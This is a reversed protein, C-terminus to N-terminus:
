PTHCRVLRRGIVLSIRDLLITFLGWQARTRISIWNLVAFLTPALRVGCQLLRGLPLSPALRYTATGNDTKKKRSRSDEVGSHWDIQNSATRGLQSLHPFVTRISMPARSSVIALDIRGCLLPLLPIPLCLSSESLSTCLIDLLELLGDADLLLGQGVEIRSMTCCCILTEHQSVFVRQQLANEELLPDIYLGFKLGLMPTGVKTGSM